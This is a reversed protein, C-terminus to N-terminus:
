EFYELVESFISSLENRIEAKNAQFADININVEIGHSVVEGKGNKITPRSFSFKQPIINLMTKGKKGVIVAGM